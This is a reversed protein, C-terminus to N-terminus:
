QQIHKTRQVKFVEDDYTCHVLRGHKRRAVEAGDITADAVRTKIELCALVPEQVGELSLVCIGDPSVAIAHNKRCRILGVDYIAKIFEETSKLREVTPIENQSGTAMDNSSRHRSFWSSLCEMLLRQLTAEDPPSTDELVRAVIKSAM